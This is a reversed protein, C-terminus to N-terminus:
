LCPFISGARARNTGRGPIHEGGARSQDGTRSYAGRGRAIPGGDPFMRWCARATCARARM